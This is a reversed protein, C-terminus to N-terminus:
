RFILSFPLPLLLIFPVSNGENVVASRASRLKSVNKKGPEPFPTGKAGKQCGTKKAEFWKEKREVCFTDLCELSLNM